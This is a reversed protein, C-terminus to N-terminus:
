GRGFIIKQRPDLQYLTAHKELDPPLVTWEQSFDTARIFTKQLLALRVDVDAAPSEGVVGSRVGDMSSSSYVISSMSIAPSSSSSNRLVSPMFFRHHLSSDPGTALITDLAEIGV